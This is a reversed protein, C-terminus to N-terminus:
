PHSCYRASDGDPWDLYRWGDILGCGRRPLRGNWRHASPHHRLYVSFHPFRVHHAIFCTHLRITQQRRNQSSHHQERRHWHSRLLRHALGHFTGVWMGAAPAKIMAEIRARMEGAAKNTFTVALVATPSLGEVDILWAIRHVLVRTKGSGTLGSVIVIPVTDISTELEDILYRRMAKYGGKILPFEIGQERIWSQATRSRLGGRFCYLYGQPNQRCFEKWDKIRQARIEPTALQLGLEVAEQEGANKYRIGIQQRQSDDLLPINAASPFAGKDFEVPARVDMLPIDNIFLEFYNDTDPRMSM